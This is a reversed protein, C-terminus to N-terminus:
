SDGGRDASRERELSTLVREWRQRMLSNMPSRHGNEWNALTNESVGIKAALVARTVNIRERRAKLDNTDM